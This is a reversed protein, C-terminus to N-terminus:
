TGPDWLEHTSGPNLGPDASRNSKWARAREVFGSEEWQPSFTHAGPFLYAARVCRRCFFGPQRGSGGGGLRLDQSQEHAKWYFIQLLRQLSLIAGAWLCRSPSLVAMVVPGPELSRRYGETSWLHDSDSVQAPFPTLVIAALGPLNGQSVAM